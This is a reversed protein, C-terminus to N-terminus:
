AGRQVVQPWAFIKEVTGGMLADRERPSLQFHDRFAAVADAYSVLEVARTWDTGWMCREVGFAELVRTLPGRLDEFPFPQHSLTCMGTVKVAINPYSALAVVSSLDAFPEPPVPPRLPQVLGLHDLVFQADSYLRALEEIIWLQRPCFVCVPLGAAVAAQIAARVDLHDTRFGETLGAMLRVGVAGPTEGWRVIAAAAGDDYPDLPAILGFRDPHQGSVEVIYSTDSGYLSWPSVLLARDVGVEVM